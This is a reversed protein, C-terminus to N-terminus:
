NSCWAYVIIYAIGICAYSIFMANKTAEETLATAVLFDLFIDSIVDVYRLKRFYSIHTGNMQLLQNVGRSNVGNHPVSQSSVSFLDKCNSACM